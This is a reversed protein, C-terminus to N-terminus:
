AKAMANQRKTRQRQFLGGFGLASATALMSLPEPVDVSYNFAAAGDGTYIAKGKVTAKVVKFNPSSSGTGTVTNSGRIVASGIIDILRSGNSAVYDSTVSLNNWDLSWSDKGASGTYQLFNAISVGNGFTSDKIAYHPDNTAGANIYNAFGGTSGFGVGFTGGAGPAGLENKFDFQLSTRADGVITFATQGTLYDGPNFTVAKASPAITALLGVTALPVAAQIGLKKLNV